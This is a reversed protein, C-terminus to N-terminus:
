QARWTVGAASVGVIGPPTTWGLHPVRTAAGGPKQVGGLGFDPALWMVPCTPRLEVGEPPVTTFDTRTGIYTGKGNFVYVANAARLYYMVRRWDVPEIDAVVVPDLAPCSRSVFDLLERVREDSRAITPATSLTLGAFDSAARALMTKDRYLLSNDPETYPTVLAFHAINTVAQLAVLSMALPAPLRAYFGAVILIAVPLGPLIYGPKAIMVFTLVLLLPVCWLLAFWGRMGGPPRRDTLVWVGLGAVNVIGLGTMVAVMTDRLNRNLMRLPNAPDGRFFWRSSRALSWISSPLSPQVVLIVTAAILSSACVLTATRRRCGPSVQTWAGLALPFLFAATVVKFVATIALAAVCWYMARDSGRSARWAAYAVLLACMLESVYIEAVEGYFWVLPSTVLMLVAATATGANRDHDATEYALQAFVVVAVLTAVVNWTVLATNADHVLLNLARAAFVYGFYGPPHPRAAAVDIRELALAFNASDWSFLARSRFMWRSGLAFLMAAITVLGVPLRRVAPISSGIVLMAGVIEFRRKPNETPVSRAAAAASNAQRPRVDAAPTVANAANTSSASPAARGDQSVM